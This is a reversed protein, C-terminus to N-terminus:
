AGFDARLIEEARESIDSRGSHGIGIFGLRRPETSDVVPGVYSRVAESALEEPSVHEKLAREALREAVEEPIEVRIVSVDGDYHGGLNSEAGWVSSRRPCETDGSTATLTTRCRQQREVKVAGDGAVPDRVYSNLPLQAM